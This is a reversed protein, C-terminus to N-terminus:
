EELVYRVRKGCTQRANEVAAPAFTKSLTLRLATSKTLQSKREGNETKAREYVYPAVCAQAMYDVIEGSTDNWLPTHPHALHLAPDARLVRELNAADEPTQPAYGKRSFHLLVEPQGANVFMTQTENQTNARLQLFTELGAQLASFVGKGRFPPPTLRHACEWHKGDVHLLAAESCVTKTEGALLHANLTWKLTQRDLENVANAREYVKLALDSEASVMGNYYEVLQNDGQEQPHTRSFYSDAIVAFAHQVLEALKPPPTWDYRETRENNKWGYSAYLEELRHATALKEM